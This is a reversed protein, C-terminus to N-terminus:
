ISFWSGIARETLQRLFIYQTTSGCLRITDFTRLM